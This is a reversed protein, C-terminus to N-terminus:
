SRARTSTVFATASGGGALSLGGTKASRVLGGFGSFLHRVEMDGRTQGEPPVTLGPAGSMGPRIQSNDNLSNSRNRLATRHLSQLEPGKDTQSDGSGSTLMIHRVFIIHAKM